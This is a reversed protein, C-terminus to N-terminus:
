TRMPMIVHQYGPESAPVFGWSNRSAGLLTKSEDTMDEADGTRHSYNVLGGCTIYVDDGDPLSAAFQKVYDANFGVTVGHRSGSDCPIDISASSGGITSGVLKLTSSNFHFLISHSREDTSSYVADIGALLDSATL